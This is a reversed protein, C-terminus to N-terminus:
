NTQCSSLELQPLDDHVWSGKLTLNIESKSSNNMVIEALTFNKGGKNSKIISEKAIGKWDIKNHCLIYAIQKVFGGKIMSIYQKSNDIMYVIPDAYKPDVKVLKAVEPGVQKEAQNLAYVGVELPIARVSLELAKQGPSLDSEKVANRRRDDYECIIKSYISKFLNKENEYGYTGFKKQEDVSLAWNHQVGIGKNDRVIPLLFRHDISLSSAYGSAPHEEPLRVSYVENLIPSLVELTYGNHNPLGIQSKVKNPAEICFLTYRSKVIPYLNKDSPKINFKVDVEADVVKNEM